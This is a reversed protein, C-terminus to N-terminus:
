VEKSHGSRDAHRFMMRITGADSPGALMVLSCSM